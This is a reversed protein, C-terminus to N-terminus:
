RLPIGSYYIKQAPENVGAERLVTEFAHGLIEQQDNPGIIIQDIIEPITAGIFNKEPINQLPIKHIEQPVDNIVEIESKVLKSESLKPNYVVRWEREERFGPHKTCLAVGKFVNFICNIVQQQGLEKIFEINNQMRELLYELEKGIQEPELYAVPNTYANFAETEVTLPEKNVVLAVSNNGGYARWMSLRGYNNEEQPHESVCAIFTHSKFYPIWGNFLNEIKKTIEPYLDNLLNKLKQGIDGNYTNTLCSIGHEIESFDNM